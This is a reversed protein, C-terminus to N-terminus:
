LFCFVLCFLVIFSFRYFRMPICGALNNSRQKESMPASLNFPAIECQPMHSLIHELCVFGPIVSEDNLNNDVLIM